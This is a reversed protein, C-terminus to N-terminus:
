GKCDGMMCKEVRTMVDKGRSALFNYRTGQVSGDPLIDYQTTRMACPDHVLYVWMDGRRASLERGLWDVIRELTEETMEDTQICSSYVRKNGYIHEKLGTMALERAPLTLDALSLGERELWNVDMDLRAATEKAWMIEDQSIKTSRMAVTDLYLACVALREDDDTVVVGAERMLQVIMYACAGATEIQTYPYAPMYATPHHDICALVRGGHQPQFHDLLILSDEQEIRGYMAQADIGLRGAIRRSQEDAQTMLAIRADIGARGLFRQMLACSLLSDVDPADHGTIVICTKAGRLIDLLKDTRESM